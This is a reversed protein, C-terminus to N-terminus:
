QKLFHCIWVTFTLFVSRLIEVLSHFITEKAKGKDVDLCHKNREFDAAGKTANSLLAATGISKAALLSM